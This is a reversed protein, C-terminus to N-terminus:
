IFDSFNLSYNGDVMSISFIHNNVLGIDLRFTTSFKIDAKIIMREVQADRPRGMHNLGLVWKKDTVEEPCLLILYDM